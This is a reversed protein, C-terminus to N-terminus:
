FKKKKKKQFLIWFIQSNKKLFYLLWIIDYQQKLFTNEIVNPDHELQNFIYGIFMEDNQEIYKILMLLTSNVNDFLFGALKPFLIDYDSHIILHNLVSQFLKVQDDQEATTAYKIAKLKYLYQLTYDYQKTTLLLQLLSRYLTIYQDFKMMNFIEM